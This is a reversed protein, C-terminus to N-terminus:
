RGRHDSAAPHGTTSKSQARRMEGAAGPMEGDARLRQLSSAAGPYDGSAARAKGALPLREGSPRSFSDGRRKRRSSFLIMAMASLVAAGPEPITEIVLRTPIGPPPDLARPNRFGHLFDGNPDGTLAITTLAGPTSLWSQVLSTVDWAYDGAGTITTSSLAGPPQLHTNYFVNRQAGTTIFTFPDQTVGRAAIGVPNDAAPVPLMFERLVTTAELRVSIVDAVALSTFAAPDFGFFTVEPALGTAASSPGYPFASVGLVGVGSSSENGRLAPAGFFFGSSFGAQTAPITLTAAGTDASLM